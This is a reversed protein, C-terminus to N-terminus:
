HNAFWSLVIAISILLGAIVMVYMLRQGNQRAFRPAEFLAWHLDGAVQMQWPGFNERRYFLVKYPQLAKSLNLILSEFGVLGGDIKAIVVDSGDVLWSDTGSRPAKVIIVQKIMSLPISRTRFASTISITEHGIQFSYRRVYRYGWALLALICAGIVGFVVTAGVSPCAAPSITAYLGLAIVPVMVGLLAYSIWRPFRYEM